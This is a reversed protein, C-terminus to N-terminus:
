ILSNKKALVYNTSTEIYQSLSKIQANLSNIDLITIVITPNIDVM